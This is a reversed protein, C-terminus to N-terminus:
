FFACCYRIELKLPDYMILNVYYLIKEKGKCLGHLNLQFKIQDHKMPVRLPMKAQHCANQRPYRQGYLALTPGQYCAIGFHRWLVYHGPLLHSYKASNSVSRFYVPWSLTPDRATYTETTAQNQRCCFFMKLNVIEWVSWQIPFYDIM